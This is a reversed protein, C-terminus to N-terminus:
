LCPSRQEMGDPSSIDRLTEATQEADADADEDALDALSVIGILRNGETVPLAGVDLDDM